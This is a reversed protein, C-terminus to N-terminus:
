ADQDYGMFFCAMESRGGFFQQPAVGAFRRFERILHAQDYYGCTAAVRAWGSGARDLMAFTRRFRLVRRLPAPALGTALGVRRELTRLTVGLHQAVESVTPAGRDNLARVAALALPDLRSRWARGIVASLAAVRADIDASSEAAATLSVALSRDCDALAVVRDTLEVIPVGLLAPAAATRFRIGIIDIIGTPQLQLPATMQGAVLTRPQLETSGDPSCRLFPDALHLVVECRGDAVVPQVSGHTYEGRMFWFCRIVSDLPPPASRETYYM